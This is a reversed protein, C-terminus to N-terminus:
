PKIHTSMTSFEYKVTQTQGPYAEKSTHNPQVTGQKTNHNYMYLTNCLNFSAYNNHVILLESKPKAQSLYKPALCHRTKYICDIYTHQAPQFKCITSFEYKVTQNQRPYAEKSTHRPQATGQKTYHNYMNKFSLHSPLFFSALLILCVFLAFCCLVGCTSVQM